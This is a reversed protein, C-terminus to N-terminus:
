VSQIRAVVKQQDLPENTPLIAYCAKTHCCDFIVQRSNPTAYGQDAPEHGCLLVAAGVLSAFAEVNSETYDRGWVLEFVGGRPDLDPKTWPRSFVGMDFKNRGVAEPVSHCAFAGCWRVALPCSGIFEHYTEMVRDTAQGYLENVGMRFVLNLIAGGKQITYGTLESLEHNSLLFHFRDPFDLKLKAVDELMAHSMCGGGDYKPGGHAVEQMILHRRPHGALDAAKRLKNFHIRHGHLDGTIIVEDAAYPSITVIAGDRGPTARNAAAAQQMREIIQEIFAITAAM